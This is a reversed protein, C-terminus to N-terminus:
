KAIWDLDCATSVKVFYGQGYKVSTLTNLAPANATSYFEDLNKVILVNSWISALASTIPTTGIIPCGIYNWGAKLSIKPAPAKIVVAITARSSECTITTQSVYYNTIGLATTIPTPATTLGIGGTAVTYWKLSTGTATLATAIANQVYTLPTIVAPASPLAVITVTIKARQSEITNVTQSVFYDTSGVTTTVPVPAIALSTGGTATTYWKLATGKAILATATTGQCYNVPTTVTPLTPAVTISIATSTTKNASNDTAVATITYNGVAINTWNYTYPSSTSTGLLTTGNYFEVKSITGDADTAIASVTVSATATYSSSSSPSTITVVPPVNAQVPTIYVRYAYFVNTVNVPVTIAGNTVTYQTTSITTTGTVPTDKNTWSVSELKVNVSTGFTTPIGSVQVSVTGTNNGGLCISAYNTSLDLCAFGDIGDSNDNPPTVTVMNGTMDGYWKYLYWGGGKENSSTLLSGLRGPLGNFWWSICASEIKNREFKAIFPVSTGPCGEYEHTAHCYENVCIPLESLGLSKEITRYDSVHSPIYGSGNLEHWCIIDPICNNAKCYTLFETLRDRTYYSDSPGVIKAKPDLSRILDYTPKWCETYFDGNTAVWTGHRENWINYSHFNSKGTAIKENIFSMVQNLWITKGPWTYPWGPLFDALYVQVGASPVSTLRQLASISSGFPHQNGSEGHPPQCFVYPKLPAIMNTVDSPLTETIGYLFGSACHTVPRISTSLNVNLTYQANSVLCALILVLNIGIYRIMQISNKM